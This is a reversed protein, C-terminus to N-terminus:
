PIHEHDPEKRHTPTYPEKICTGQLQGQVMQVIEVVVEQNRLDASAPYAVELYNRAIGHMLGTARHYRQGLVQLTTGIFRRNFAQRKAAAITRLQEARNKIVSAQLHGPMAAAKTGPRSSYPFVHLDALPLSEIFRCTEAHEAETEGPFGAILDAAIFADPLLRAAQEIRNRFFATDYPRGMRALVRDCGSQLPIHLHPCISSANCFLALLDDTLENPEISGLRLRPVIREDTLRQVLELLSCPPSLDLGYAGLHIGTLVLEQFGSGALERAAQLVEDLAVSRSPGRATPVICYSCGTNCGNQVQLFARTHEAFSTLRLPRNSHLDTLDSIQHRGQQLHHLLELKEQNGLVQDVEPLSILPQPSVQASCGTAVVQALPACRRARRILRRTEADSKATVTCSNILCLEAPEGFPVQQWGAAQLQEIMAATEFQNVKCGLTAISFRGPSSPPHGTM